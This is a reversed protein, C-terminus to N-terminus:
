HGEGECIAFSPKELTKLLIGRWSRLLTKSGHTAEGEPTNAVVSCIPLPTSAARWRPAPATNSGSPCCQVRTFEAGASGGM